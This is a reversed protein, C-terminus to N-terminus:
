RQLRPPLQGLNGLVELAKVRVIRVYRGDSVVNTLTEYVSSGQLNVNNRAIKELAALVSYALNDDPQTARLIKLVDCLAYTVENQEDMGILGLAHAAEARVMPERDRIIMAVLADKASEGGLRGLLEAARRRIDPLDNLLRRSEFVTHNSGELGLYELIPAIDRRSEGVTSTDIMTEIDDLAANKQDRDGSFAQERLIEFVVRRLYLEEVTLQKDGDESFGSMTVLLAIVASVVPLRCGTRGIRAM